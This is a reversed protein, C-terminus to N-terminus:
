KITTKNLLLHKHHRCYWDVLVSRVYILHHVHNVDKYLNMVVTVYSYHFMIIEVLRNIIFMGMVVLMVNGFM